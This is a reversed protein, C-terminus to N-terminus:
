TCMDQIHRAAAREVTEAVAARANRELRPFFDARQQALLDLGARVDPHLELHDVGPDLFQNKDYRIVGCMGFIVRFTFGPATRLLQALSNYLAQLHSVNDCDFDGEIANLSNPGEATPWPGGFRGDITELVALLDIGASLDMPSPKAMTMIM